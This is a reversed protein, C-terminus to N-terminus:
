KVDSSIKVSNQLGFMDRKTSIWTVNQAGISKECSMSIMNYDETLFEEDTTENGAYLIISTQMQFSNNNEM